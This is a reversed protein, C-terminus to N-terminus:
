KRSIILNKQLWEGALDPRWMCVEGGDTSAALWNGLMNWGLQWVDHDHDLVAVRKVELADVAGTLSWLTVRHGSAVAILDYPRGLRPAWAVASIGGQNNNSGDDDMDPSSSKLQQVQEWRLLQERFMWVEGCGGGGASGIALLPPLAPDFERWSVSTCAKADRDLQFESHPDWSVANLSSAAIFLKVSGDSFAISVIPGMQRPAFCADLAAHTSAPIHARKEWQGHSTQAWVLVTGQGTGTCLINGFEPPAWCICNIALGGSTWAPGPIWERSQGDRQWTSITGSHDVVAMLTHPINYCVHAASIELQTSTVRESTM